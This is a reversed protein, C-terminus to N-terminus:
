SSILDEIDDDNLPDAGLVRMTDLKQLRAVFVNSLTDGRLAYVDDDSWHGTQEDRFSGKARKAQVYRNVAACLLCVAAKQDPIEAPNSTKVARLADLVALDAREASGTSIAAFARAEKLASALNTRSVHSLKAGEFEKPYTLAEEVMTEPPSQRLYEERVGHLITEIKLRTQSANEPM